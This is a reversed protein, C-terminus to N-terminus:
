SGKPDDKSMRIEFLCQQEAADLAEAFTFEQAGERYLRNWIHDVM